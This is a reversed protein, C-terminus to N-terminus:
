AGQAKLLRRIRDAPVARGRGIGECRKAEANWAARRAVLEPWFPYYRCQAPRVPYIRCRNDDGLFACRGSGPETRLSETAEDYRTVYRRRFWRWSVGLFARIRRQEARTVAIFYDGPGTCCKGCGTCEFRLARRPFLM